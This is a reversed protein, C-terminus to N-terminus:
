FLYQPIEYELPNQVAIQYFIDGTWFAFSLDDSYFQDAMLVLVDTTIFFLNKMFNFGFNQPNELNNQVDSFLTLGMFRFSLECSLFIPTYWQLTDAM